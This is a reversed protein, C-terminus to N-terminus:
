QCNADLPAHTAANISYTCDTGTMGATAGSSGSLLSHFAVVTANHREIGISNSGTASLMSNTVTVTGSYGYLGEALYPGTARLTSDTIIVTGANSIGFAYINGGSSSAFVTVHSFHVTAAAPVLIAIQAYASGSNSITLSRVESHSAGVLVGSGVTDNGGITSSIVTTDEGSGELDVYPLMTLNQNGLDYNGPELKLLYPNAASPNSNSIIDRAALLASGNQIPTGNSGVLFTHSYRLLSNPALNPLSNLEHIAGGFPLNSSLAPSVPILSIALGFLLALILPYYAAYRKPM